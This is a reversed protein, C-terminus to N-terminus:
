DGVRKLVWLARGSGKRASFDTPRADGPRGECLTLTEGDVRWIAQVPADLAVSRYEMVRVGNSEYFGAGVSAATFGIVELEFSHTTFRLVKGPEPKEVVPHGDHELRQVAWRGVPGAVPKREDPLRPAALGASVFAVGACATLARGLAKM